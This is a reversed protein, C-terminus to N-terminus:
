LHHCGGGGATRRRSNPRLPRNKYVVCLDTGYELERLDEELNTGDALWSETIISFHLGLVEFASLLSYIKPSLSRANTLLMRIETYKKKDVQEFDFNDFDEDNISDFSSSNERDPNNVEDDDEAESAILLEDQDMDAADERLTEFEEEDDGAELGLKEWNNGGVYGGGLGM